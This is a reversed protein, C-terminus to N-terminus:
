KDTNRPAFLISKDLIQKDSFKIVIGFTKYVRKSKMVRFEDNLSKIM